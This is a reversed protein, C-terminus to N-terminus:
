AGWRKSSSKNTFCNSLPASAKLKKIGEFIGKTGRAGKSKM